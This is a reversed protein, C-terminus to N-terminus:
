QSVGEAGRVSLKSLPEGRIVREHLEPWDAWETGLLRDMFSSGFSYHNNFRAHHLAHYVIPHSIWSNLRKHSAAPFFDINAHGIVNGPIQYLTHYLLFGMLSLPTALSLLYPVGALGVLWGVSEVTSMSYGTLPTTVRSDHHYRHFRYFPRFHMARHLGWYYVEFGFWCFAFTGAIAALSEEALPVIWLLGAFVFAAMVVFRVTGILEWRLQGEALPLTWIRRTDGLKSELLFGVGTAVATLGGVFMGCVLVLQVFSLQEVFDTVM